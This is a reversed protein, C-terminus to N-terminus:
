SFTTNNVFFKISQPIVFKGVAQKATFPDADSERIDGESFFYQTEHGSRIGLSVRPPIPNSDM